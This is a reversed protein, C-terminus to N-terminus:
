DLSHHTVLKCTFQVGAMCVTLTLLQLLNLGPTITDADTVYNPTYGTTHYMSAEFSSRKRQVKPRRVPPKRHQLLPTKSNSESM